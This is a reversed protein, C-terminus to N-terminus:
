AVGGTSLQIVNSAQAPRIAFWAKGQSETVLSRYHKQIMVPSNGCEFAVEASNKLIALRCSAFGHRLGNKKWPVGASEGATVMYRADVPLVPGTRSAYPTLWEVAAECLPVVRRSQTKAIHAGVVVVREALNVDSWLLRALEATRLGCFGGLIIAPRIDDDAAELLKGFESPTFVECTPASPKPTEIESIKAAHERTVYNRRAAFSMLACFSRHLNHQYCGSMSGGGRLKLAMLWSRFVEATVSSLPGRFDTSFRRGAKGEHALYAESLNRGKLEALYEAVVEPTDKPSVQNAARHALFGEVAQFISFGSGELRSQCLNFEAVQDRTLSIADNRGMGIKAAISKAEAIADEEKAFDRMRRGHGPEHYAIRVYPYAQGDVKRTARYLKM